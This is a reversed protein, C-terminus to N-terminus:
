SVIEPRARLEPPSPSDILGCCLLLSDSEIPLVRMVLRAQETATARRL